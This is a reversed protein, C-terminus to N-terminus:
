SSFPELLQWGCYPVFCYFSPCPLTFVLFTRPPARLPVRSFVAKVPLATQTFVPDLAPRWALTALTTRLHATSGHASVFPPQSVSLDPYQTSGGISVLAERGVRM